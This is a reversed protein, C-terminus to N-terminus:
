DAATKSFISNKKSKRVTSQKLVSDIEIGGEMPATTLTSDKAKGSFYGGGIISFVRKRALSQYWKPGLPVGRNYFLCKVPSILAEVVM